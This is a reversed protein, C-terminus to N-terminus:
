QECGFLIGAQARATETIRLVEQSLERLEQYRLDDKKEIVDTLAEVEYIMNNECSITAVNEKAGSLRDIVTLPALNYVAGFQVSGHSGQIENQVSGDSIKSCLITCNFHDYQLVLTGAGDIGNHLKQAVYTISEPAGFLSTAAFIPYVGLDVLAGGSFTPNFSNKINGQLFADYKSSYQCCHLLVNQVTGIQKISQGLTAFNPDHINRIAEFLYVNNEKATAFAIELEKSNSFIPKECIVHKGNQLFLMAQEFHCSNPSAIYVVEFDSCTAMDTLDTFIRTVQHKRAFAEATEQKRSYVAALTLRRTVNTAEIFTSCIWSTGITAFRM